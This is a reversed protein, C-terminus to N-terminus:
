KPGLQWCVLLKGGLFGIFPSAMKLYEQLSFHSKRIATIKKWSISLSLLFECAFNWTSVVLSKRSIPSRIKTELASKAPFTLCWVTGLVSDDQKPIGWPHNRQCLVKDDSVFSGRQGHRRISCYVHQLCSESLVPLYIEKTCHINNKESIRLKPKTLLIQKGILKWPLGKPRVRSTRPKEVFASSLSSSALFHNKRRMKPIKHTLEILSKLKYKSNGRSKRLSYINNEMWGGETLIPTWQYTSTSEEARETWM